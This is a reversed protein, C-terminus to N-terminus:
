LGNSERLNYFGFGATILYFVQLAAYSYLENYTFLPLAASSSIIFAIFAVRRKAVFTSTVLVSGAVAAIVGTAELITIIYEM